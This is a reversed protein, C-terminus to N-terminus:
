IDLLCKEPHPGELLLSIFFIIISYKEMFFIRTHTFGTYDMVGYYHMLPLTFHNRMYLFFFINFKEIRNEM